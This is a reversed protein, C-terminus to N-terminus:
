DGAADPSGAACFIEAISAFWEQRTMGTGECPPYAPSNAPCTTKIAAEYSACPGALAAQVCENYLTSDGGNVDGGDLSFCADACSSWECDDRKGRAAACSTSSSDGMEIAFCGAVNVFTRYNFEM